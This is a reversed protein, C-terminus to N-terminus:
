KRKEVREKITRNFETYTKLMFNAAIPGLFMSSFGNAEDKQILKARGDPMTEILYQHNDTIGPLFPDSWGFTKGAEFYKLKHRYPNVKGDPGMFYVVVEGEPKLEGEIKQLSKSWSPMEEFNTLEKWAAEPTADIITETYVRWETPSKNVIFNKNDPKEAYFTKVKFCGNNLGTFIFSLLFIRITKKMVM